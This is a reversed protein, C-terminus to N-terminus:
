SPRPANMVLPELWQAPDLLGHYALAGLTEARHSTGLMDDPQFGTPPVLFDVKSM